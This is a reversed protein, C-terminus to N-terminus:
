VISSDITNLIRVIVEFKFISLGLLFDMGNSTIWYGYVIYLGFKFFNLCTEGM